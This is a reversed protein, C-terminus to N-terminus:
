RSRPPSLADEKMMELVTRAADRGAHRFANQCSHMPDIEAELFDVRINKLSYTESVLWVDLLGMVAWDVFGASDMESKNVLADTTVLFDDCPKVLIKIRAKEWRPGLHKDRVGEVEMSRKLTMSRAGLVNKAWETLYDKM